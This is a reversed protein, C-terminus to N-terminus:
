NYEYTVDLINIGGSFGDSASRSIEIFVISGPQVGTIPSNIYRAIVQNNGISASGTSLGSTDSMPVSTGSGTAAPPIIRYTIPLSPITGSSTSFFTFRVNLTNTFSVNGVTVKYRISSQRGSPLSLHHIGSTVDERANNLVILSAKGVSGIEGALNVAVSGYYGNVSDGHSGVLDIGSGARLRSVTPVKVFYKGNIRQTTKADNLTDLTSIDFVEEDQYDIRATAVTLVGSRPSTQDVVDADETLSFTEIPIRSTSDENPSLSIVKGIGNVLSIKTIWFKIETGELDPAASDFQTPWPVQGYDDTMWWIGEPTVKLIEASIGVGNREAYYFDLPIPPFNQRLEAEDPHDINYGFFAGTPPDSFESAPLWGREGADASSIVHPSGSSPESTSGAPAPHLMHLFHAHDRNSGIVGNNFSVIGDPRLIGVYSTIISKSKSFKGPSVSSLYLLGGSGVAGDDMLDDITKGYNSLYNQINLSGAILIDATNPSGTLVDLVIGEIFSRKGAFWQTNIDSTDVEALGKEYLFQGSAPTDNFYVLDGAEVDAAVPASRFILASGSEAVKLQDYLWQTRNTLQLVPRNPTGAKVAEGDVIPDVTEWFSM